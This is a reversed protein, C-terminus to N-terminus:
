LRIRVIGYDLISFWPEDLLPQIVRKQTSEVYTIFKIESQILESMTSILPDQDDNSSQIEQVYNEPFWGIEGSCEGQWWGGPVRKRALIIDGNKFSL